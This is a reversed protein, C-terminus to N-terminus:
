FARSKRASLATGTGISSASSGASSSSGTSAFAPTISLSSRSSCSHAVLYVVDDGVNYLLTRTPLPGHIDVGPEQLVADDKEPGGYIVLHGVGYHGLEQMELALVGLLVDVQVYVGGAAADRRAKCDVVGNLEDLRIDGRRGEAHGGGHPGEQEGRAGLVLPVGQRVRAYKQVLRADAPEGALSRVHLDVGFLEEHGLTAEVLDEGLVRALVVLPDLAVGVAVVYHTGFLPDLVANDVVDDSVVLSTPSSTSSSPDM